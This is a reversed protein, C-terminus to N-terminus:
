RPGGSGKGRDLAKDNVGGKADLTVAGSVDLAGLGVRGAQQASANLVPRAGLLLRSMVQQMGWQPHTSLLLAATGSVFPTSMSTGSWLRYANGPYASRVAVGPAAIDVFDGYSTFDAPRGDADCAAVAIVLPSTAPYEAPTDSGENGAAAVCVVEHSAAEGIANAVAPSISTMGLSLNIVKAGNRTAWRIGAAIRQVDGRGEADLVRVILLQADPATLAVIGAVHTGHGYAGDVVGDHNADTGTPEDTPDDDRDVFDHGGAIRGAFLPHDPDIGTDLIAVRVGVGSSLDHAEAVGLRRSSAQEVANELCGFGDDFAWSKQRAEATLVLANSEFRRDRRTSITVDSPDGTREFLAVGEEVDILTAQLAVAIAQPDSGPDLTVVIQNAIDDLSSPALTGHAQVAHSPSTPLERACSSLPLAFLLALLVRTAPARHVRAIPPDIAYRDFM